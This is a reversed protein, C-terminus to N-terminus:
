MRFHELDHTIPFTKMARLTMICYGGSRGVLFMVHGVSEDVITQVYRGALVPIM